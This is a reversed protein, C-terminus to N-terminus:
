EINLNYKNGSEDVFSIASTLTMEVPGTDGPTLRFKPTLFEFPSNQAKM